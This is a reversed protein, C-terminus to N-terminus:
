ARKKTKKPKSRDFKGVLLVSLKRGPDPDRGLDAIEAAWPPLPIVPYLTYYLQHTFNALSHKLREGCVRWHCYVTLWVMAVSHVVSSRWACPTNPTVHCHVWRPLRRLGVSAVRGGRCDVFVTPSVPQCLANKHGFICKALMKRAAFLVKPFGNKKTWVPDM